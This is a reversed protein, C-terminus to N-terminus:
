VKPAVEGHETSIGVSLYMSASHSRCASKMSLSDPVLSYVILDTRVSSLKVSTSGATPRIGHSGHSTTYFSQPVYPHVTSLDEM